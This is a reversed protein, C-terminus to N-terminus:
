LQTWLRRPCRDEPRAPLYCWHSARVAKSKNIRGAWTPLRHRRYRRRASLRRQYNLLAGNGPANVTEPFYLEWRLGLNLTLKHTVRWTDQGYFFTRKQFEKANTSTSVYRNMSTVDGLMFTAFGLGGPTAAAPTRPPAPTFNMVGARDNDSPVRLNRGYRLDAGVKLSHNGMIWTWNNVIQFQDERETLPCNCRNVKLGDGYVTGNTGGSGARCTRHYQIGALRLHLQEALTSARFALRTPLSPARTM